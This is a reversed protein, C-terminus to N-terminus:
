TVGDADPREIEHDWMVGSSGTFGFREHIKVQWAYFESQVRRIDALEDDSFEVFNTANPQDELRQLRLVAWWEDPYYTRTNKM